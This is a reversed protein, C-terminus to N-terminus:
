SLWGSPPGEDLHALLDAPDDFIARAGSLAADPWGGSRVAICMVGARGAAEVDYPTDGVLVAHAAELGLGKLAMCVIDPDPKSRAADDSSARAHILDGVGTRELLGALETATASSAIALRLYRARLGEVLERVRPFPQLRPLHRTRFIEGRRELIRRAAEHDPALGTLAPVVKEGGMGILPRVLSAPIQFGHEALAESWAAAHADNSDLLTGDVDFLV